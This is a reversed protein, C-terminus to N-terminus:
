IPPSSLPHGTSQRPFRARNPISTSPKNFDFQRNFVHWTFRFQSRKPPILSGTSRSFRLPEDQTLQYDTFSNFRQRGGSKIDQARQMLSDVEANLQRIFEPSSPVSANWKKKDGKCGCGCDTNEKPTKSGGFQSLDEIYGTTPM